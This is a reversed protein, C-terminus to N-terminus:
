IYQITIQGFSVSADLCITGQPQPDSHGQTELSAFTVSQDPRVFFRRPVQLILEGFSCDAEIRCDQTVEQCGSLDVTLEGFSCSIEGLSLRPLDIYQSGECFSLECHFDEDGTTCNHVPVGDHKKDSRSFHFRHKEPKRLADALLSLGFLVVIAPFVLGGLDLAIVNLNNLLFYGGFLTCGLSFFSFKPFLGQLGFVLLATPWLISWFSVNWDLAESLLTLVGVSLVMLAFFVGGRRSNDYHFEWKGNQIHIGEAENEKAKPETVMQAEHVPESQRGLLEDTTVGFIDALKPLMTIDPCSQNNEWKSVAQATVGLKEALQDQTLGMSKRCLMIRKGLTQEM